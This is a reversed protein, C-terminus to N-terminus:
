FVINVSFGLSRNEPMSFSELGQANGINFSGQAPSFGPTDKHFYFLNRGILSVQLSQFPTVDVWNVPLDYTFVIERMRLYTADYVFEETIPSGGGVRGWYDQPNVAKENEVYEGDDIEVVGEAVYGERDEEDLDRTDYWEQRGELTFEPFGRQAAFSNTFSYVDGGVSIDVLTSLSFNRYTVENFFGGTFDPNFNGLVHTGDDRVPLGEDDIIREGDDNRKYREGVIDGFPEGVSAQVTAGQIQGLFFNQLEGTLEVVENRNFGINFRSTWEWGTESDVPIFTLSGEIGENRIMGANIRAASFGSTRSVPIPLIQNRTNERYIGMDLKVRENFFRLDLGAEVSRTIEPKLDVPPLETPLDAFQQGKHGPNVSYTFNTVFPPGGSGVEAWSARVQGFPFVESILDFAETFVFSGSVSPYIFPLNEVPLTSDWDVRSTLDLFAYDRFGFETTAFVSQVEARSLISINNASEANSIDYFDPIFIGEGIYGVTRDNFRRYSGGINTEFDLDESLARSYQMMARVNFEVFNRDRTTFTADTRYPTYQARRYERIENFYDLGTVLNFNLNESADYNIRAFGYFRDREDESINLNHAWFPNMNRTDSGEQAAADWTRALGEGTRFNELDSLRESTPMRILAQMPNDPDEALPPRNDISQTVYNIRAEVNLDDFFDRGARLSVFHRQLDNDPYNGQNMTNSYSIRYTHDDGGGSLALINNATFSNQFYEDFRDPQAEYPRVEGTWDLAMTGDMAPGWSNTESDPIIYHENAEDFELTGNSGRGFDTQMEPMIYPQEVTFNSTFEVGIGPREQGSRTTIELVGDAARSGYLAAANPGQLVSMSEIEAMNVQNLGSGFDRGGQATASMGGSNDIPVGDVVILPQSTGTLSRHGRIVIRTSGDPGSGLGDIQVNSVRGQLASVANMGGSRSIEEGGFEQVTYGLSKEERTMGFATVVLDEGVLAEPQLFVELETEEDVTVIKESFGLYRFILENHGEPVTIEFNGDIDTSTGFDTGVVMINVGALPQDSEADFVTGSVNFDQASITSFVGACFIIVLSLFRFLISIKM